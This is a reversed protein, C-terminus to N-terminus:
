LTLASLATTIRLQIESWGNDSFLNNFEANLGTQAESFVAQYLRLEIENGPFPKDCTIRIRSIDM